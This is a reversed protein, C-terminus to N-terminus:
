INFENQLSQTSSWGSSFRCILISANNSDTRSQVIRFGAEIILRLPLVLDESVEAFALLLILKHSEFSRYPPPVWIYWCRLSSLILVEDILRLYRWCCSAYWSCITEFSGSFDNVLYSYISQYQCLKKNSRKELSWFLHLFVKKNMLEINWYQGNFTITKYCCWNSIRIKRFFVLLEKKNSCHKDMTTFFSSLFQIKNTVFIWTNVNKTNIKLHRVHISLNFSRGVLCLYNFNM